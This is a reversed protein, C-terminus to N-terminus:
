TRNGQSETARITLLQVQSLPAGGRALAEPEATRTKKQQPPTPPAREAAAKRTQRPEAPPGGPAHAEEFDAMEEADDEDQDWLEPDQQAGAEAELAAGGEQALIASSAQLTARSEQLAHVLQDPPPGSEPNWMNEIFGTLIELSKVLNMNVQPAPMVPLPAEQM